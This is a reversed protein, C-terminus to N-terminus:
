TSCDVASTGIYTGVSYDQQGIWFPGLEHVQLNVVFSIAIRVLGHIWYWDLGWVYNEDIGAFLTV